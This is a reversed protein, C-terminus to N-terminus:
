NGRRSHKTISSIVDWVLVSLIIIGMFNQEMWADPILFGPNIVGVPMPIANFYCFIMTIIFAFFLGTTTNGRTSSIVNDTYDERKKFSGNYGFTFGGLMLIFWMIYWVLNTLTTREDAPFYTNLTLGWQDLSYKNSSIVTIYFTRTFKYYGGDTGNIEYIGLFTKNQGTNISQQSMNGDSSQEGATIINRDEDYITFKMLSIEEEGESTYYGFSYNTNNDLDLLQPYFYQTLGNTISKEVILASSSMEILIEATSIPRHSQSGGEYDTKSYQVEYLINPNLWESVVGSDDTTKEIVLTTGDFILVNVDSLGIKTTSDIFKFTAYIGSSEDLLDLTVNTTQNTLVTQTGFTREPYGDAYYSISLDMTINETSPDFCFEYSSENGATSYTYIKSASSDEIYYDFSSTRITANLPLLTLEDRFDISLYTINNTGGCISFNIDSVNQILTRTSFETGDLTINWYFYNEGVVSINTLPTSTLYYLNGSVSNLVATNSINNYILKPNVVSSADTEIYIKFDSLETEKVVESYTQNIELLTYSWSTFSSNENGFTDNAYFTINQIIDELIFNTTNLSCNVTVNTSNYNYWCSDLGEDSVTWSLTENGGVYNYDLTGIPATINIQPSTADKFITVNDVGLNGATDNAYVFITLNNPNSIPYLLSTTNEICSINITTSNSTTNYFCNSLNGGNTVTYNLTINQQPNDVIFNEPPYTINVVPATSDLTFTWNDAISCIENIQCTEVNWIYSEDLLLTDNHIVNISENINISTNIHQHAITGNSYFVNLTWNTINSLLPNLTWNFQVSPDNIISNNLPSNLIVLNSICNDDMFGCGAEYSDYLFTIEEQTLTRNHIMFEDIDGDFDSTTPVNDALIGTELNGTSAEMNGPNANISGVPSGDIYITAGSSSDWTATIYYWTGTSMTINSNIQNSGGATQLLFTLENSSTVGLGYSRGIGAWKGIFWNTAETFSSPRIWASLSVENTSLSADNGYTIYKTVSDYNRASGIKGTTNTTGTNTGDNSGVADTLNEYQFYSVMGISIDASWTAWEEIEVGYITPIWDVYDGVRVDTFVGMTLYENKKLDAPTVKTWKERQETHSGNWIQNCIAIGETSNSYDLYCNTYYDNVEVDEYELKKLDYDRNIKEKGNNMDLFSFQKIADNYDDYAWIDFEAVKQYGAGVKVNQESILVAQGIVEGLGFSNTITVIKLDENYSKVNDFEFASVFSVMFISLLIFLLLKNM